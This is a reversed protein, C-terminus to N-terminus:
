RIRALILTTDDEGPQCRDAMAADCTSELPRAPGALERKLADVNREFADTGGGVLGGGVLGDTFLALTADAPLTIGASEYKADGLGLPQGSPLEIVRGSGDPRALVPPLHGARAIRGSGTAPDLTACICTAFTGSTLTAAMQNLRTLVADAPLDLGALVHAAARLQVMATAAEPGYGMADGVVIAVRAGPLAVIDYWDGGVPRGAAPVHRHAVELSSLAPLHTPLLGRQIARVLREEQTAARAADLYLTAESVLEAADDGRSNSSQKLM